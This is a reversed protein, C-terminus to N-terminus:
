ARGQGARGQGARGQWAVGQWAMGQCAVGRWAVGRWAMGRWAVGHWAMVSRVQSLFTGNAAHAAFVEDFPRRHVATVHARLAQLHATKVVIPFSAACRM